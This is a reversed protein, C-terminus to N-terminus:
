PGEREIFREEPSSVEGGSSAPPPPPAAPAASPSAPAAPEPKLFPAPERPQAPQPAVSAPPEGPSAPAVAGDYSSATPASEVGSREYSAPSAEPRGAEAEAEAPRDPRPQPAAPRQPPPIRESSSVPAATEGSTQPPAPVDLRPPEPLPRDWSPAPPPLDPPAAPQPEPRVPAPAAEIPHWPAASGTGAAEQPGLGSGLLALPLQREVGPADADGAEPAVDGEATAKRRSRGRGGRRSRRRKRPAEGPEGSVEEPADDAADAEAADASEGFWEVGPVDPSVAQVDSAPAGDEPTSAPADAAPAGELARDRKGRGRRSSRRRRKREGPAGAEAADAATGEPPAPLGLETGDAVSELAQEPAAIAPQEAAAAGGRKRRRSKAPAAAIAEASADVTDARPPAARGKSREVKDARAASQRERRDGQGTEKGRRGRGAEPEPRRETAPAGARARGRRRAAPEELPRAERAAAALEAATVVIPGDGQRAPVAELPKRGLAFRTVQRATAWADFRSPRQRRDPRFSAEVEDIRRVHPAVVRLLAANAAWVDDWEVLRRNGLQEIAKRLGMVRYARLGSLMDTVGEPWGRGRLMRMLGTRLWRLKRPAHEPSVHARTTVVDAGSEIRKLLAPIADPEETFDAQLTLVVDRRPYESRGVAERVLEDLSAAYGLARPHHLVTLPLIRAYPALVEATADDSGDDLVLLQYDRPFATLVQRIKWLLIGLTREENHSPICIYIM